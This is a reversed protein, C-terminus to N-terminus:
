NPFSHLRFEWYRFRAEAIERNLRNLDLLYDSDWDRELRDLLRAKEKNLKKLETELEQMFQVSMPPVAAEPLNFHGTRFDFKDFDGKM